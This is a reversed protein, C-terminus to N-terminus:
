EELGFWRRQKHNNETIPVFAAELRGKFLGRAMLRATIEDIDRVGERAM